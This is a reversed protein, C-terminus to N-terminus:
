SRVEIEIGCRGWGKVLMKTNVTGPDLTNVTPPGPGLRKALETTFLMMALKSLSYTSHSSYSREANLNDWPISSGASISSVNIIRETVQPPWCVASRLQKAGCFCNELDM